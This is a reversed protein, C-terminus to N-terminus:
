DLKANTPYKRLILACKLQSKVKATDLLSPQLLSFPLHTKFIRPDPMVESLKIMMGQSLDKGSLLPQLSKFMPSKALDDPDMDGFLM